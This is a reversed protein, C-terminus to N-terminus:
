SEKSIDEIIKHKIKYDGKELIVQIARGNAANIIVPAKMNVSTERVNQPITALVLLVIDEDKLEGLPELLADEVVPDYDKIVNLPNVVPFALGKETVCQLWSFFPRKESEIDYLLTYDKYEEFGMIGNEFHIIKNDDVEIEGFYKTDIKM